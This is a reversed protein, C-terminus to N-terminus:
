KSCIFNFKENDNKNFWTHKGGRDMAGSMDCDVNTKQSDWNEYSVVEDSVWFWFDLTCTYRLGLWVYPSNAKKPKEQVWRQQDLNTISVLDRHHERCYYLADVWTKNQNILIVKDEYCFFPKEDDCDEAEWRGKEDLMTVACKGNDSQIFHQDWHRFSFSSNDSWSWSDRFLGMYMGNWESTIKKRLEEDELQNLGSVLDTHKDRCYTQAEQWESWWYVIFHFPDSEDYCIFPGKDKCSKNGWKLNKRVFGCNEDPHDNWIEDEWKEKAETENFEVGSMSWRWKRNAGPLNVLGIWAKDKNRASNCLRKTDSMNSVTALDTYEERCYKQADSWTMPEKIFHYEYLHCTFFSCQGMLISLFLSGQM